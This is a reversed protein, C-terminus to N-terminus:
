KLNQHEDPLPNYKSGNGANPISLVRSTPAKNENENQGHHQRHRHRKQAPLQLQNTTAM